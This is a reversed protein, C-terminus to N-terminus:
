LKSAGRAEEAASAVADLSKGASAVVAAALTGEVLPADVLRVADGGDDAIVHRATLFSSGVDGLVVVGDGNEARAIAESILEESTGLGGDPGGGAGEIRLGDGGMQAALQVLGSAIESSHSVVVIGVL